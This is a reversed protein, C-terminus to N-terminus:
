NNQSWLVFYDHPSYILCTFSVPNQNVPQGRLLKLFYFLERKRKQETQKKRVVEGEKERETTERQRRERERETTERERERAKYWSSIYFCGRYIFDVTIFMQLELM